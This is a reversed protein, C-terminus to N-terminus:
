ADADKYGETHQHNFGGKFGQVAAVSSVHRRRADGFVGSPLVTSAYSTM